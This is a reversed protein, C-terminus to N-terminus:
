KKEHLHIVVYESRTGIRFKGGWIGMGSSIYIHSNEKRLYGHHKEFLRRTILSIPWVQGKHTHGSVQLDVGNEPIKELEYPQHDLVLLVKEKNLPATLENLSKRSPNSRDDRGVIYFSNNVLVASDRLLHIGAKELFNLSHDIGAIYEHNGPIAYIGLKANFERFVDELGQELLPQTNNDIIDGAILLLDPEEKNILKVWSEFEKRGISYGLHLDSILVIKLPKETHLPKHVPLSLEVRDKHLYRIYGISIFLSMCATIVGFGIWNEKLYKEFPLLDAIRLLDLTLFLLLLYLFIILWSTGITYTVTVVPTPMYRGLGMSLFPFALLVLAIVILIIKLTMSHPIMQWIRNFVYFYAGLFFIITIIVPFIRM